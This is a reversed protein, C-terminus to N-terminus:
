KATLIADEDTAHAGRCYVSAGQKLLAPTNPMCRVVRSNPALCGEM